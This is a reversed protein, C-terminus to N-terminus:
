ARASSRASAAPSSSRRRRSASPRGVRRCSATRAARTRSSRARWRAQRPRQGPRRRLKKNEDFLYWNTKTDSTSSRRSARSSSTSRSRRPPSAARLEVAARPQGRPRLARAPRDPRPHQDRPGPGQRRPPRDRDPRRGAQPDRAGRRRAPRRPRPPDGGLPRPRVEAAPPEAAPGGEADGRARGPPRARADGQRPAAIGSDRAARRRDPRRRDAWRSHPPTPSERPCCPLQTRM